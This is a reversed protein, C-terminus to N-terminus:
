GRAGARRCVRPGAIQQGLTNMFMTGAAINATGFGSYPQGSIANLAAPGQVTNLTAIAGLVTAFDGSATPSATDLATGVAFQNPTQAGSAFANSGQSLLLFVNNSDYSLSPTLFAFNSTVTSYAGSVGGAATLITYTTNRAYTGPQALM